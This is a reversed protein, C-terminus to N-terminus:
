VWTKWVEVARRLYTNGEPSHSKTWLLQKVYEGKGGWGTTMMQVGVNFVGRESMSAM